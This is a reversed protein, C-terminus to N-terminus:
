QLLQAVTDMLFSWLDGPHQIQVGNNEFAAYSGLGSTNVSLCLTYSESTCQHDRQVLVSYM